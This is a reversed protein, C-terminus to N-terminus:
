SATVPAFTAVDLSPMVHVCIGAPLTGMEPTNYEMMHFPLTQITPPSPDGVFSKFVFEIAHDASRAAHVPM